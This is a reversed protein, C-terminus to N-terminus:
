GASPCPFRPRYRTELVFWSKQVHTAEKLALIHPNALEWASPRPQHTAAGETRSHASKASIRDADHLCHKMEFGQEFSSANTMEVKKRETYAQTGIVTMAAITPYDYATGAQV